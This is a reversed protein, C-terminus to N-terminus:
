SVWEIINIQYFTMLEDDSGFHCKKYKKGSGCPCWDNRKTKLYKEQKIHKQTVVFKKFPDNIKNLLEDLIHYDYEYGKIKVFAYKDYPETVIAIAKLEMDTIIKQCLQGM